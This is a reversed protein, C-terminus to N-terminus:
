PSHQKTFNNLNKIHKKKLSTLFFYKYNHILSLRRQAASQEAHPHSPPPHPPTYDGEGEAQRVISNHKQWQQELDLGSEGPVVQIKFDRTTM